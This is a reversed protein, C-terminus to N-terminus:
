PIPFNPPALLLLLASAQEAPTNTPIYLEKNGDSHGVCSSKEIKSMEESVLYLARDKTMSARKQIETDHVNRRHAIKSHAVVTIGIALSCASSSQRSLEDEHRLKTCTAATVTSM